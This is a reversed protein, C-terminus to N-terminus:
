KPKSGLMVGTTVGAPLMRPPWQLVVLKRERAVRFFRQNDNLDPQSSHIATLGGASMMSEFVQDARGCFHIAGGFESLLRQDYPLVFRDYHEPKLLITTDNRLVIKGRVYFSWHTTLGDAADAFGVRDGWALMFRRYTETVVEVLRDVLEPEDYGAMFIDPGMLLHAVDYPGQLDPHYIDIARDLPPFGKLVDRYYAATEFCRGGLDHMPDAPGRGILARIADRGGPLEHSWPMSNDTLQWPGGLISPLIITGYNARINLPRYDRARVADFVGGLQQMLMKERDNFGDNYPYDPWQEDPGRPPISNLYPLEDVPAFDYIRKWTARCRAQWDLDVMAALKEIWRKHLDLM